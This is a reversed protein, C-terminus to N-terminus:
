ADQPAFLGRPRFLLVVIVLVWPLAEALGGLGQSTALEELIGVLLGIVMAGTLSGFGAVAMVALGILGIELGSFPSVAGTRLALLVAAVGALAGSIALTATALRKANFGVLPLATPDEGMARLAAGFSTRRVLLQLGVLAAVAVAFVAIQAVSVRYSGIFVDGARLNSGIIVAESGHVAVVVGQIAIALGITAVAASIPADRPIPRFCLIDTLLGGALGVALALLIAVVVPVGHKLAIAAILGAVMFVHGQALTLLRTVGFVLTYGVALLAYNAGILLGNVLVEAV